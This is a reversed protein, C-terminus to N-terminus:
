FVLEVLVEFPLSEEGLFPLSSLRGDPVLAPSNEGVRSSETAAYVAASGVVGDDEVGVQWVSGYM